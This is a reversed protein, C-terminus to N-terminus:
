MKVQKTHLQTPKLLLSRTAFTSQPDGSVDFSFVNEINAEFSCLFDCQSAPVSLFKLIERVLSSNLNKDVKCFTHPPMEGKGPVIVCVDTVALSTHPQNQPARRYTIYIRQSSSSSINAPRGSPTTQVIHCGSKLKEKWEYLIRVYLSFLAYLSCPYPRM